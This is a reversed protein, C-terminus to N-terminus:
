GFRRSQWRPQRPSKKGETGNIEAHPKARPGRDWPLVGSCKAAWVPWSETTSCSRSALAATSTFSFSLPRPRPRRNPPFGVSPHSQSSTSSIIFHQDTSPKLKKTFMTKILTQITCWSLSSNSKKHNRSTQKRCRSKSNLFLVKTILTPSKEISSKLKGISQVGM